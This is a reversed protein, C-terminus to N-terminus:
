LDTDNEIESFENAVRLSDKRVLLSAQILKNKRENTFVIENMKEIAKRIYEARQIHLIHASDDLEYLLKDPLRISIVSM